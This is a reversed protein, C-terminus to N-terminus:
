CRDDENMVAGVSSFLGVPHSLVVSDPVGWSHMDFSLMTADWAAMDFLDRGHCRGAVAGSKEMPGM